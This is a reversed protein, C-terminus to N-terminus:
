LRGTKPDIRYVVINNSEQNAAFLYKGTPDIAFNRRAKGGTSVHQVPQLTGSKSDIAFVAITDPGRNSAYLFKGSRDILIEASENKGKFDAPLSSVTKLKDLKGTRADFAFSTISGAM